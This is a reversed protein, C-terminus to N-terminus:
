TALNFSFPSSERSSFFLSQFKSAVILAWKNGDLWEQKSGVKAQEKIDSSKLRERILRKLEGVNEPNIVDVIDQLELKGGKESFARLFDLALGFKYERSNDFIEKWQLSNAHRCCDHGHVITLTVEKGPYVTVDGALNVSPDTSLELSFVLDVDHELFSRMVQGVINRWGSDRKPRTLPGEPPAYILSDVLFWLWLTLDHSFLETRKDNIWENPIPDNVDLINEKLLWSLVSVGKGCHITSWIASLGLEVKSFKSAFLDPSAHYKKALYIQADLIAQTFMISYVRKKGTKFWTGFFFNQGACPATPTNILDSLSDVRQLALVANDLGDVFQLYGPAKTGSNAFKLFHFVDELLRPFGVNEMDDYCGSAKVRALKVEALFTQCIADVHNFSGLNSFIRHQTREARLFEYVSRHAVTVIPRLPGKRWEHDNGREVELLGKCRDILLTRATRVRENRDRQKREVGGLEEIQDHASSSSSEEFAFKRDAVYDDLFSYALATMRPLNKEEITQIMAVTRCAMESKSISDFIRDLMTEVKSPMKDIQVMIQEFSEYESYERVSNLALSVWLFVGKAKKIISSKLKDLDGPGLKSNAPRERDLIALRNRVVKAIDATTLSELVIRQQISFANRFPNIDRSSVCMKVRDPALDNWKKLLHVLDNYDYPEDAFEDLGDIFFCIRYGDRARQLLRKMASRLVKEDLVMNTNAWLTISKADNWAEPLVDPILEQQQKLSEYLLTSLFGKLSQQEKSGPLYFFHKSLILPQGNAWTELLTRTQNHQLLFKMLTSKGSAPKGAIHFFGSGSQLWVRFLSEANRVYPNEFWPNSESLSYASDSESWAESDSEENSFDQSPVESEMDPNSDDSALCTDVGLSEPNTVSQNVQVDSSFAESELPTNSHESNAEGDSSESEGDSSENEGGSSESNGGSSESEENSSESEGGSSESEENSSESEGDANPTDLIWHFTGAFNTQVGSFRTDMDSFHLAQLIRSAYVQHLCENSLQLLGSLDDKDGESLSRSAISSQLKQISEQISRASQSAQNASAEM